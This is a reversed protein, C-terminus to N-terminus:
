ARFEVVYQFPALEHGSNGSSSVEWVINELPPIRVLLDIRVGAHKVLL